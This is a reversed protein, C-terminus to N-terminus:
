HNVFNAIEMKKAVTPVCTAVMVINAITNREAMNVFLDCIYKVSTNKPNGTVGNIIKQERPIMRTYVTDM